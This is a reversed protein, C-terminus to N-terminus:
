GVWFGLVVVVVCTPFRWLLRGELGKLLVLTLCPRGVLRGVLLFFSLAAVTVSGMAAATAGGCATCGSSGGLSSGMTVVAVSGVGVRGTMAVAISMSSRGASISESSSYSCTSMVSGVAVSGVGIGVMMAVLSEVSPMGVSTSESSSSLWTSSVVLMAACTAAAGTAGGEGAGTVGGGWAVGHSLGQLNAQKGDGHRLGGVVLRPGHHV